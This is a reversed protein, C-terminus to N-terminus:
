FVKGRKSGKSSNASKTLWQCNEKCYDKSPDIRDLTLGVEYNPMDSVFNEFTHWRECVKIGKGGYWPYQRALPNYCRTCMARWIYYIPHSRLGHKTNAKSTQERNFCGCSKTYGALVNGRFFEKVTGCECECIVLKGYEQLVLLRGYVKGEMLIKRTM